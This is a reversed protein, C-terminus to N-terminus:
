VHARGIKDLYPNVKWGKGLEGAAYAASGDKAELRAGGGKEGTPNEPSISRSIADTVEYIRSGTDAGAPGALLLTTAVVAGARLIWAKLM